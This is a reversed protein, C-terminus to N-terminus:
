EEKQMGDFWGGYRKTYQLKYPTKCTRSSTEPDKLYEKAEEHTLSKRLVRPSLNPDAYFRLIMYGKFKKSRRLRM